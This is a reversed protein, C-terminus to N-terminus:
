EDFDEDFSFQKLGLTKLIKSYIDLANLLSMLLIVIPVFYRATSGFASSIDM